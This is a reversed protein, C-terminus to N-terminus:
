QRKRKRKAREDLYNVGNYAITGLGALQTLAGAVSGRGCARGVAVMGPGIVFVDLLRVEQAKSAM